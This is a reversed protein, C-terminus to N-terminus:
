LLQEAKEINLNSLLLKFQGGTNALQPAVKQCFGFLHISTQYMDFFREYLHSMMVQTGMCGLFVAFLFNQQRTMPLIHFIFFHLIM